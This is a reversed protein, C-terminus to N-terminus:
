NNIVPIDNESEYEQVFAINASEIDTLRPDSSGEGSYGDMHDFFYDRIWEVAFPRNYCAYIYNRVLKIERYSLGDLDSDRLLRNRGTNGVSSVVEPRITNVYDFDGTDDGRDYELHELTFSIETGYSCYIENEGTVLDQFGISGGDVFDAEDPDDDWIMFSLYAQEGETLDSTLELDCTSSWTASTGCDQKTGWTKQLYDNGYNSIYLQIILDPPSNLYDWSSGDPKTSPADRVTVESVEYMGPSLASASAIILLAAVFSSKVEDRRQDAV